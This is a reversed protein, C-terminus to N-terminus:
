RAIVAAAATQAAAGELTASSGAQWLAGAGCASGESHSGSMHSRLLIIPTCFM